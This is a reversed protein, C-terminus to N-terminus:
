FYDDESNFHYNSVHEPNFTPNEIEEQDERITTVKVPKVNYSRKLDDLDRKLIVNIQELEKIRKVYKMEIAMMRDDILTEVPKNLMTKSTKTEEDNINNTQSEKDSMIKIKKIPLESEPIMHVKDLERFENLIENLSRETDFTTKTKKRLLIHGIKNLEDMNKNEVLITTKQIVKEKQIIDTEFSTLEVESFDVYCHIPIDSVKIDESYTIKTETVNKNEHEDGHWQDSRRKTKGTKVWRMTKVKHSKKIDRINEKLDNLISPKLEQIKSEDYEFVRSFVFPIKGPNMTMWYILKSRMTEFLFDQNKNVYDTALHFNQSLFPKNEIM